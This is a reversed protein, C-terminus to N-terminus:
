GPALAKVIMARVDSTREDPLMRCNIGVEATQPLANSAHGGKLMTAVCTTGLMSNYLPDGGLVEEAEADAPDRILARMAAAIRPTEIKATQPV